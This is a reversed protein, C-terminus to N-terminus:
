VRGLTKIHFPEKIFRDLIFTLFILILEAYVGTKLARSYNDYIYSYQTHYEIASAIDWAVCYDLPISLAWGFISPNEKKFVYTLVASDLAACLLYYFVGFQMIYAKLLTSFVLTVIYIRATWQARIDKCHRAAIGAMTMIAISLINGETMFSNLFNNLVGLIDMM